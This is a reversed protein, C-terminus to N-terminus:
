DACPPPLPSARSTGSPATISRRPVGVRQIRRPGEATAERNRLRIRQMVSERTSPLAVRRVSHYLGVVAGSTSGEYSEGRRVAAHASYGGRFGSVSEM